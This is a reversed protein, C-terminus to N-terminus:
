GPCVEPDETHSRYGARYNLVEDDLLNFTIAMNPQTRYAASLFLRDPAAVPTFRDLIPHAAEVEVASNGVRATGETRGDYGITRIESNGVVIAVLLGRDFVAALYDVPSFDVWQCGSGPMEFPVLEGPWRAEVTDFSSGITIDAFAPTTTTLAVASVFLEGDVPDFYPDPGLKPRDTPDSDPSPAPPPDPPPLPDPSPAPALQDIDPPPAPISTLVTSSSTPGDHPDRIVCASLLSASAVITVAM